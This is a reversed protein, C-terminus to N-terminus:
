TYLIDHNRKSVHTSILKFLQQHSQNKFKFDDHKFIKYLDDFTRKRLLFDNTLQFIHHTIPHILLTPKEDSHQIFPLIRKYQSHILRILKQVRGADGEYFIFKARKNKLIGNEHYENYEDDVILREPEDYFEYDYVDEAENLADKLKFLPPLRDGLTVSRKVNSNTVAELHPIKLTGNIIAIGTATFIQKEAPATDNTDPTLIGTAIADRANVSFERLEFKGTQDFVRFNAYRLDM